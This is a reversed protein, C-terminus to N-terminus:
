SPTIVRTSTGVAYGVYGAIHFKVVNTAMRTFGTVFHTFILFVVIMPALSYLFLTM